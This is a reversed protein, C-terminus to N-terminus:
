KAGDKGALGCYGDTISLVQQTSFIPEGFSTRGIDIQKSEITWRWHMCKDASCRSSEVTLSTSNPLCVGGTSKVINPIIRCEKMWAEEITM